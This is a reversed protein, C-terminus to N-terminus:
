LKPGSLPVLLTAMKVKVESHTSRLADTQTLNRLRRLRAFRLVHTACHEHALREDREVYM